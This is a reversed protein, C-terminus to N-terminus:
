GMAARIVSLNWNNRMWKLAPLSEAYGTDEWNLWMSSVGKLQVRKDSADRLETGTVHLAGHMAVPTPGIDGDGVDSGDGMDLQVPDPPPAEAPSNSGADCGLASLAFLGLACAFALRLM